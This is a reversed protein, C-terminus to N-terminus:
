KVIMIVIETTMDKSLAYWGPLQDNKQIMVQNQSMVDGMGASPAGNHLIWSGFQDFLAWSSLQDRYWQKVEDPSVNTAFRFGVDKSGYVFTAKAYTPVGAGKILAADTPQLSAAYASTALFLMVIVLVKKM